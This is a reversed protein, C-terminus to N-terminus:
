FCHSCLFCITEFRDKRSLPQSRPRRKMMATVPRCCDLQPARAGQLLLLKMMPLKQQFLAGADLLEMIYCIHYDHPRVWKQDSKSSRELSMAAMVRVMPDDEQM